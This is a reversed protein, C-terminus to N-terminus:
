APPPRRSTGSAVFYAISGPVEIEVEEFSAELMVRLGDVDDESNDFGVHLNALRLFM